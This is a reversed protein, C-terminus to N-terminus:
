KSVCKYGHSYLTDLSNNDPNCTEFDGYSFVTYYEGSNIKAQTITNFAAVSMFTTSCLTDNNGSGYNFVYCTM